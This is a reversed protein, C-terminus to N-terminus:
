WSKICVSNFSGDGALSKLKGFTDKAYLEVNTGNYLFITSCGARVRREVITSITEPFKPPLDWPLRIVAVPASSLKELAEKNDSYYNLLVDRAQMLDMIEPIECGQSFLLSYLTYSWVTKGSNPPACIIYNKHLGYPDSTFEKLLRDMFIGYDTPLENRLLIRSFQVNQYQMPIGLCVPVEITTGATCDCREGSCLFGTDGCKICGAM